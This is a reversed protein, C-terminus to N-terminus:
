KQDGKARVRKNEGERECTVNGRECYRNRTKKKIGKKNENENNRLKIFTSNGKVETRTM